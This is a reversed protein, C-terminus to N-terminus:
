EPSTLAAIRRRLDDFVEDHDILEGRDASAIGEQVAARFWRDYDLQNALLDQAVQEPAVNKADALARLQADVADELQITRHVTM